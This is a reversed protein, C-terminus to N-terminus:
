GKQRGLYKTYGERKINSWFEDEKLIEPFVNSKQIEKRDLWCVEKIYHEDPGNGQINKKSLEGSLIKGRLFIELNYTSNELDVFERIYLIEDTQINYGTEEWTERIACEHIDKDVEELGGGPPVWWEFKTTPHSHRVLLIKQEEVIIAAVRIRNIM